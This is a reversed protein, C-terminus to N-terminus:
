VAVNLWFTYTLASLLTSFSIAIVALDPDGKMEKAMVYSITASPSALLILGPLYEGPPFGLARFTIYGLGPMLFLKTTSSSLVWKVRHRTEQFSISAGIILLAMPLALGSLIGLSRQIILPIPVKLFSCVIGAMASLIVPNGVLNRVITRGHRASDPQHANFTLSLVSLLNQVIMLFGTLISAKVFGDEGLYYFAVALGIYGLNGHFSIQVYSGLQGQKLRCARGFVWAFVFAVMATSLTIVLIGVNFHATLTARSIASFIMAPIAIYFVLSNAPGIFDAHIFGKKRSIWGLLIITFIPIITTFINM